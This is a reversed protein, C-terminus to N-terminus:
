KVKEENDDDKKDSAAFAEMIRLVATKAPEAENVKKVLSQV